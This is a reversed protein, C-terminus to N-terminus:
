RSALVWPLAPNDAANVAKPQEAAPRWRELLDLVNPLTVLVLVLVTGLGYAALRARDPLPRGCLKEYVLLVVEGGDLAPIPLLNIVALNLCWVGLLLLFLYPGAESRNRPVQNITVPVPPNLVVKDKDGALRQQVSDWGRQLTTRVRKLGLKAADGADEASQRRTDRDMLLGRSVLPWSPDETLKLDLLEPLAFAGSEVIEAASITQVLPGM